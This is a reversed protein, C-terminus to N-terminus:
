IMEQQYQKYLPIFQEREKDDLALKQLIANLQFEEMKEANMAKRHKESKQPQAFATSFAIVLMALVMSIQKKM